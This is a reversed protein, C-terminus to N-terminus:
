ITVPDWVKKYVTRAKKEVAEQKANAIEYKQEDTLKNDYVTRIRIYEEQDKIYQDQYKTKVAPDITAYQKACLQVVEIPKLQPNAVQLKARNETLYRFFPTLPKKPRAPLGLKEELSASM